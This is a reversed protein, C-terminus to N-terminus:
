SQRMKCTGTGSFRNHYGDPRAYVSIAGNKRVTAHYDFYPTYQNSGNTIGRLTWTVVLKRDNNRVIEGDIPVSHVSLILADSVRARGTGDLVIGIKESIWGGGRKLQTLDCDYLVGQASSATAAVAFFVTFVIRYFM